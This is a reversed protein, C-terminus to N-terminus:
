ELASRLGIIGLGSAATIIVEKYPSLDVGLVTFLGYALIIVGAWITKSKYWDKEM